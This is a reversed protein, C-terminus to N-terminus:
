VDCIRVAEGLSTMPDRKPIFEQAIYGDYGDETIARAIARYNLEQTQDIENRGPVGGTHFHAIHERNDRITRIVDGEMIQMHYIDYLLKFRPSAVRRVLEVGWDTHDCQYDKHDVKSNLLEMCVTVGLEQALPTIRKLGAACNNLGEEDSLARRNGSFVIMNPIGAEAVQPLLTRAKEVLSDHDESQNWGRTIGSPGNAMACTLGFRKLTPWQEPGLLEVSELGIAASERCLEELSMNRYCWKCVSHHVTGKLKAKEQAAGPRAALAGAAGAMLKMATRRTM